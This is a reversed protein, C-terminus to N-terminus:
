SALKYIVVEGNALIDTELCIQYDAFYWFNGVISQNGDDDIDMDEAICPANTLGVYPNASGGDFPTYSGNCSYQEFLESMMSSYDQGNDIDTQLEERDSPSPISLSLDGNELVTIELHM